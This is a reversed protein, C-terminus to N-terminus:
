VESLENLEPIESADSYVYAKLSLTFNSQLLTQLLFM